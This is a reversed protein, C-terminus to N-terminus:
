ILDSRVSDILQRYHEKLKRIQDAILKPFLVLAIPKAFNLPNIAGVYIIERRQHWIWPLMEALKAGRKRHQALAFVIRRALFLKAELRVRRRARPDEVACNAMRVIYNALEREIHLYGDLTLKSTESAGHVCYTACSENVFGARGKMLLPAWGAVDASNHPVDYPFGGRARLAETRIMMSCNGVCINNRLYEILLRTGEWVGTAFKTSPTARDLWGDAPSYFDCLGLIIPIQPDRAAVAVCRELIRPSLTDDDSCFVIYDGRAEALCANWNPLLGINSLQRVTRLRPDGFQKLVEATEDTSANDSVVVEFHQYTQSLAAVVCNKLWSARNFTPIAITVFPEFESHATSM